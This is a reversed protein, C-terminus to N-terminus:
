SVMAEFQYEDIIIVGHNQAARLKSGPREGVVLYDTRSSVSSSVEGGNSQIEALITARTYHVLKGTVVFRKGELPSAPTMNETGGQQEPEIGMNVGAAALRAIVAQKDPDRMYRVFNDAMTPGIQPIQQIDESSASILSAMTHFNEVLWVSASRGVERVGLAALVNALPRTKSAEVAALLRDVSRDGMRELRILQQRHRHLEYIDAVDHLLGAGMLVEIQRPGLGDIDMYDRGVWHRLYREAQGPCSTNRCHVKAEGEVQVVSHGCSPCQTPPIVITETGDRLDPFSARVAPIVDGARQVEVTDGVRLDREAIYDLNHLTARSVVTGGIEVPKLVAYPNISGTRGVNFVVDLLTTRVTEAPFKYAVAWRPERSVAGLREQFSFRNVKIVLGDVQYELHPRLSLAESYAAALEEASSCAWRISGTAFGLRGLFLLTAGQSTPMLHTSDRHTGISYAFFALPRAAVENPDHHRISGAAFNRPNSYAQRGRAQAAVNFKEFEATPTYVEGRVTMYVPWDHELENPIDEIMRANTTIDEGTVGNGRTAARVLRGHEYTLSVAVGDYKMECLLEPSTGLENSIRDYWSVMEDAIFVNGLSLMPTEHKVETTEVGPAAGVTQTPSERTILHPYNAELQRLEQMLTDYETDSIEPAAEIYYLQNHRLIDTRLRAVEEAAAMRDSSSSNSM